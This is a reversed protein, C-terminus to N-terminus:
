SDDIIYIKAHLGALSKIKGRRLFAKITEANFNNYEAIDTLLRVDISKNLIHSDGLIKEVASKGGIYPVAIWLRNKTTDSIRRLENVLDEGYLTQM